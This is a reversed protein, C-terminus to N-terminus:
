VHARGIKHTKYFNFVPSLPTEKGAVTDKIMSITNNYRAAVNVAEDESFFKRAVTGMPEVVPANVARKTALGITKLAAADGSVGAEFGVNFAGSVIAGWGKTTDGLTKFGPIKGLLNRTVDRGFNYNEQGAATVSLKASKKLSDGVAGTEVTRRQASSALQAGLTAGAVVGAPGLVGGALDSSCM